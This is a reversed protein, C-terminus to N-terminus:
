SLTPAPASPRQPAELQSSTELLSKMRELDEDMETKPDTRFLRAVTHGIAGAPPSYSMRVELRTAADGVPHFRVVGAHEVEAGPLTRWAFAKNPVLRTIEADWAAEDNAPPTADLSDLLQAALDAPEREPLTLARDLLERAANSMMLM